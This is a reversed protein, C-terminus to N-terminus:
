IEEMQGAWRLLCFEEMRIFGLCPVLSSLVVEIAYLQCLSHMRVQRAKGGSVGNVTLFTYVVGQEWKEEQGGERKEHPGWSTGM